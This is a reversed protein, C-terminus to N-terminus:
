TGEEQDEPPSLPAGQATPMGRARIKRLGSAIRMGLTTPQGAQETDPGFPNVGDSPPLAQQGAARPSPLPM